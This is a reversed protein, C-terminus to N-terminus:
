GIDIINDIGTALSGMASMYGAQRYANARAEGLLEANEGQYLAMIKEAELSNYEIEDNRIKNARDKSQKAYQEIRFFLPSGSDLAAGSMAQYSYQKKRALRQADAFDINEQTSTQNLVAQQNEILQAEYEKERRRLQGEREAVEANAEGQSAAAMAGFIAGFIAM